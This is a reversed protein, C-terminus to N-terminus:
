GHQDGQLAARCKAIAPEFDYENSVGPLASAIKMAAVSTFVAERLAKVQRESADLRNLLARIRDPDCRAIHAMDEESGDLDPHRDSRNVFPELVSQTIGRDDRKLRRWSNSTWWKWPGPTVGELGARLAEIEADTAIDTM